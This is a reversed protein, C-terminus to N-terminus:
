FSGTSGQWVFASGRSRSPWRRESFPLFRPRRSPLSLVPGYPRMSSNTSDVYIASDTVTTEMGFILRYWDLTFGDWIMMNIPNSNFSYVIVLVIPAYIFTFFAIGYLSLLKSWRM